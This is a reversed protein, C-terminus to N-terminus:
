RSVTVTTRLTADGPLLRATFSDPGVYGPNPTYDIRTDDGVTHIVVKGHAPRAMLLPAAFPAGNRSVQIACWGGDNGVAMTVATEKGDTLAPHSPATCTKAAGQQDVAYQRAGAAAPAAMQQPTCGQLMLGAAAVVGL